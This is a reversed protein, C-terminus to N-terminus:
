QFLIGKFDPHKLNYELESIRHEILRRENVRFYIDNDLRDVKRKLREIEELISPDDDSENYAM